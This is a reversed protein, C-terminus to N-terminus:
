DGVLSLLEEVIRERANPRGLKRANHELEPVRGGTGLLQEATRYLAEGSAEEETFVLAAGARELERANKEQHNNTVNPSPVLIGARGVKTLEALTSAGSRCIILDAATMLEGMNDIYPRLEEWPPLTRVDLERLREKMLAVGREGNGTAHIHHFKGNEANLRIFDAMKRNMGDAGLSGWFSVVLKKGDLGLRERAEERTMNRFGDRVPTGTVIVREPRKYHESVEPFAVMVRDVIGSLLKTTLGPVANSEHMVTPIKLKAAAKLVPYCVYGGTGVAIDPKFEKLIRKSERGALMLNKVTAANRLLKEPSIGRYLGTMKINRLQFGEAPVLRKELERGSGVFLFQADPLLERLAEAVSLAPNIHGATGGCVFLFRM